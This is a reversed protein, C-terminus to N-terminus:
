RRGKKLSRYVKALKKDGTVFDNIAPDLISSLILCDDFSIGRERDYWNVARALQQHDELNVWPLDLLSQFVVIIYSKSKEYYSRLTWEVELVVPTPLYLECTGEAVAEFLAQYQSANPRKLVYDLLVNTDLAVVTRM